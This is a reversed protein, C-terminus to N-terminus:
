RLQYLRKSAKTNIKNIHENWQMNSTITLGLNTHSTVENLVINNMIIPNLLPKHQKNSVRLFCSKPPSFSARWQTAWDLTTSLDGNIINIASIPDKTIRKLYLVDDAFKFAPCKTNNTMDSVFILFLLPGLISGQPVGAYLYKTDSTQGNVVV